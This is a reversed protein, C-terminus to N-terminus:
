LFIKFEAIAAYALGVVPKLARIEDIDSQALEIFWYWNVTYQVGNEWCPRTLYNELKKLFNILDGITAETYRTAM